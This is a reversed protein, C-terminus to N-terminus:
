VIEPLSKLVSGIKFEVRCVTSDIFLPIKMTICYKVRRKCPSISIAKGGFNLWVVCKCLSLSYASLSFGRSGHTWSLLYCAYCIFADLKNSCDVAYLEVVCTNWMTELLRAVLVTIFKVAAFVGCHAGYTSHISSVLVVSLSSLNLQHSINSIFQCWFGCLCQWVPLFWM